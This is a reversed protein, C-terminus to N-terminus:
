KDLVTFHVQNYSKGGNDIRVTDGNRNSQIQTSCGKIGFEAWAPDGSYKGDADKTDFWVKLEAVDVAGSKETHFPFRMTAAPLLEAGMVPQTDFTGKIADSKVVYFTTDKTSVNKFNGDGYTCDATTVSAWATSCCVLLGISFLMKKTSIM